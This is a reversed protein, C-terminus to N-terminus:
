RRYFAGQYGEPGYIMGGELRIDFHAQIIERAVETLLGRDGENHIVASALNLCDSVRQGSSDEGIGLDRNNARHFDEATMGDEHRKKARELYWQLRLESSATIGLIFTRSEQRLLEIEGPNRISDIVVFPASEPLSDFTLKALVSNGYNRRLENGINQLNERIPPLNRALAEERVRDSLSTLFFGQSNFYRAVVSKGSAIPGVLGVITTQMVSM